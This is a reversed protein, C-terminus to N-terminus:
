WWGHRRGNKTREIEATSESAVNPFLSLFLRRRIM